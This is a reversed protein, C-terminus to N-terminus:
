IRVLRILIEYNALKETKYQTFCRKQEEIANSKIKISSGGGGQLILFRM